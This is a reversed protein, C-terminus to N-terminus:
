VILILKCERIRLVGPLSLAIEMFYVFGTVAYAPSQKVCNYKAQYARGILYLRIASSNFM